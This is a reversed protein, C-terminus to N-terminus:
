TFVVCRSHLTYLVNQQLLEISAQKNQINSPYIYYHQPLALFQILKTLDL